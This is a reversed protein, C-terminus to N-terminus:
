SNKELMRWIYGSLGPGSGRNHKDNKSETDDIFEQM